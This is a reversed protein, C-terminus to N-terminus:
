YCYLDTETKSTGELQKYEWTCPCEDKATSLAYCRCTSTGVTVDGGPIAFGNGVKANYYLVPTTPFTIPYSILSSVFGYFPGVVTYHTLTEKFVGRCVYKGSYWKEYTWNGSTGSEIIYDSIGLDTPTHSHTILAYKQKILNILHTLSNISLYTKISM